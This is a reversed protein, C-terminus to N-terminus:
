AWAAACEDGLYCRLPQQLHEFDHGLEFRHAAPEGRATHGRGIMRNQHPCVLSAFGGTPGFVRVFILISGRTPALLVNKSWAQALRIPSSVVPVLSSSGTKARHTFQFDAAFVWM